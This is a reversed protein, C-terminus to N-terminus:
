LDNLIEQCQKPIDGFSTKLYKSYSVLKDCYQKNHSKEKLLNDVFEYSSVSGTGMLPVDYNKLRCLIKDKTTDPLYQPNLEEPIFCNHLVLVDLLDHSDLFEITDPLNLINLSTITFNFSLGSQYVGSSDINVRKKGDFLKKWRELNRCFVNWRMGYRCFEGVDGIGDLSINVRARKLKRIFNQWDKNIFKSNNTVLSLVFSDMNVKRELMDFFSKNYRSELTPEGGTIIIGILNEVDEETPFFDSANNQPTFNYLGYQTRLTENMKIEAEWASSFNSNCTICKFNCKTNSAFELEQLKPFLIENLNTHISNMAQRISKKGAEDHEYCIKCGELYEGKKMKARLEEMEEGYFIDNLTSYKQKFKPYYCCTSVDGNPNLTVRVFPSVCFRNIM